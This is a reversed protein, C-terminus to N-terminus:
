RALLSSQFRLKLSTGEGPPPYICIKTNPAFEALYKRLSPLVKLIEWNRRNDPCIIVLTLANSCTTLYWGCQSLPAKTYRDCIDSFYQTVAQDLKRQLSDDVPVQSPLDEPPLYSYSM